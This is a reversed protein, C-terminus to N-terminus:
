SASSIDCSRLMRSHRCQSNSRDFHRQCLQMVLKFFIQHKAECVVGQTQGVSLRSCGGKPRCVDDPTALSKPRSPPPAKFPLDEGLRLNVLGAGAATGDAGAAPGGAASVGAGCSYSLRLFKLLIQMKRTSKSFFDAATGGHGSQLAEASRWALHLQRSPFRVRRSPRWTMVPPQAARPIMLTVLHDPICPPAQRSCIVAHSARFLMNQFVHSPQKAAM